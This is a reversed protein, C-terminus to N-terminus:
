LYHTLTYDVLEAVGFPNVPNAPVYPDAVTMPSPAAEAKGGASAGQVGSGVLSEQARPLGETWVFFTGEARKLKSVIDREVLNAPDLLGALVEQSTRALEKLDKVPAAPYDRTAKLRARLEVLKELAEKRAPPLGERERAKDLDVLDLKTVVILKRIRSTASLGDVFTSLGRSIQAGHEAETEKLSGQFIGLHTIDLFAYLLDSSRIHETVNPGSAQELNEGAIDYLVLARGDNPAKRLNTYFGARVISTVLPDTAGIALPQYTKLDRLSQLVSAFFSFPQNRDPSPTAYAYNEVEVDESGLFTHSSVAVASLVSKGVSKSGKVFIRRAKGGRISLLLEAPFWMAREEPAMARLKATAELVKPLSWHDVVRMTNQASDFWRLRSEQVLTALGNALVLPNLRRCGAHALLPQDHFQRGGDCHRRMEEDSADGRIQRIEGCVPCFQYFVATREIPRFCLPCLNPDAPHPVEDPISAKERVWTAVKRYTEGIRKVMTGFM